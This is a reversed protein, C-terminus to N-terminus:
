SPKRQELRTVEIIEAPGPTHLDIAIGGAFDASTFVGLDKGTVISRLSYSGVPILPLKV